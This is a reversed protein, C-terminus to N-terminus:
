RVFEWTVAVNAGRRIGLRRRVADSIDFRTGGRRSGRPHPLRGLDGILCVVSRGRYALRVRRNLHRRDRVACVLASQRFPRGNAMLRGELHPAYHTVTGPACLLTLLLPAM